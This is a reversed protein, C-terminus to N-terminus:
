LALAMRHVSLKLDPKPRQANIDSLVLFHDSLGPDVVRINFTISSGDIDM